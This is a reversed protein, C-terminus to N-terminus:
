NCVMNIIIQQELFEFTCATLELCCAHSSPGARQRQWARVIGSLSFFFYEVAVMKKKEEQEWGVDVV